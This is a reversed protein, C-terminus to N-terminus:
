PQANAADIAAQVAPNDSVLKSTLATIANVEAQVDPSLAAGLKAILANVATVIAVTQALDEDIKTDLLALATRLDQLTAAMQTEQTSLKSLVPELVWNRVVDSLTM